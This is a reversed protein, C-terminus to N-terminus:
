EEPLELLFELNYRWLAYTEELLRGARRDEEVQELLRRIREAAPDAALEELYKGWREAGDGEYWGWYVADEHWKLLQGIWESRSTGPEPAPVPGITKGEWAWRPLENPGVPTQEIRPRYVIRILEECDNEASLDGKPGWWGFPRVWCRVLGPLARWPVEMLAPIQLVHGPRAARGRLTEPEYPFLVFYRSVHELRPIQIHLATDLARRHGYLKRESAELLALRERTMGVMEIALDRVPYANSAANIVRYGFRLKGSGAVVSAKVVIQFVPVM